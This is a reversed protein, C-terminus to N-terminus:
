HYESKLSPYVHTFTGSGTGLLPHEKWINFVDEAVEDRSETDQSTERLREVLDGAGFFTGVIAM